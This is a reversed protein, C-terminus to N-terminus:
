KISPETLVNTIPAYVKEAAFISPHLGVRTLAAAMNRKWPPRIELASLSVQFSWGNGGGPTYVQIKDASYAGLLITDTFLSGEARHSAQVAVRCILPSASFNSVGMVANPVAFLIPPFASHESM